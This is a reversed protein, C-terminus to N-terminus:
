DGISYHWTAIEKIQESTISKLKNKSIFLCTPKKDTFLRVYSNKAFDPLSSINKDVKFCIGYDRYFDPPTNKFMMTRESTYKDFYPMISTYWTYKYPSHRQAQWYILDDSGDLFLTDKPNSLLKVVTGEQLNTGYNTILEDQQSIKENAFYVPSTIFLILFMFLTLLGMIFIIRNKIQIFIMFITVLIFSAYWILMHYAEYFLKGPIIPRLNALVLTTFILFALLYKKSVLLKVYFILFLIDIGILFTKFINQPGNSFIFLPYFLIQLPGGFVRTQLESIFVLQYNALVV